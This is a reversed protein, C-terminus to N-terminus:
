GVIKLRTKYTDIVPALHLAVCREVFGLQEGDLFVAIANPDNANEPDRCFTVRALSYLKKRAEYFAIGTVFCEFSLLEKWHEM